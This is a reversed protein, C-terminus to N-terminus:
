KLTRVSNVGFRKKYSNTQHGNGVMQDFSWHAGPTNCSIVLEIEQNGMNMIEIDM